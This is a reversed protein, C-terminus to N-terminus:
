KVSAAARAPTAALALCALMVVVLRAILAFARRTM